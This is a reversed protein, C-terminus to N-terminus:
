PKKELNVSGSLIRSTTPTTAPLPPNADQPLEPLLFHGLGIPSVGDHTLIGSFTASRKLKKGAFAPATRLETDELLFSGTFLGTTASLSLLKVSGLNGASLAAPFKAVNKALIDFEAVDPNIASNGLGGENEDFQLQAKEGLTMGLILAPALPPTYRAGIASIDVPGYGLPYTRSTAAPPRLWSVTGALVDANLHGANAADIDLQGCLSGKSKLLAFVLIQGHPGAFTGCTYSEGDGTKGAASLKGDIGLTFSGYGDGRPLTSPLTPPKLAFTFQKPSSTAPKPLLGTARWVQQWGEIGATNPGDTVSATAFRQNATDLTFKFTLPPLAGTRPIIITAEPAAPPMASSIDMAGTKITHRVTGLTLSGSIVGTTAVTLDVRGGLNANLVSNRAVVGTYAGAVKDTLPAISLSATTSTGAISNRATLTVTYPKSLTPKGTILGTVTNLTLGPIAPSMSYSSAASSTGGDCKIQHTYFSSVQGDPMAQNLTIQPKANFVKVSFTGAMLMAGPVSAECTYVASDTAASLSALVLTQPTPTSLTQVMPPDGSTKKWTVTAAGFVSVTPRITTGALSVLTQTVPRVVALVVPASEVSEVGASVVVSYSGADTSKVTNFTLTSSVAGKVVVGNKKWAFTPTLSPHSATVSLSALTGENRILAVPPSAISPANTGIGTLAIDFPNETADNSAIKLTATRTGTTTPTFTVTFTTSAAPALTVAGLSGAVFEAAQPGIVSLSLGTLDETGSNKITFTRVEPQLHYKTGFTVTSAQDVLATNAPQEVEIEALSPPGNTVTVAKVPGFGWDRGSVTPSVTLLYSGVASPTFAFTTGPPLTASSATSVDILQSFSVDDIYWGVGDSTQGFFSGSIFSFNFRLKITVGAFASLSVTRAQFATEGPSGAGAQTYIPQWTLGDNKSAEVRAIQASTATGLRSRFSLSAGSKVLFKNQYTLTQKGAAPNALRYSGSGSFKVSTSTAAYSGTKDVIVRTLDNAPDAAANVDPMFHGKYSTAGLVANFSYNSTVSTQVADSGTLSPPVFAPKFDVKVNAAASIVATDTGNAGLDTFTVSRSANASPVPVAYGGSNSTIAHFSSGDVNVTLGGIGEGLDYFSNGNLDYYAVGTVFPTNSQTTGFDQTVLHPGVSDSGVKNNGLLVGIGVERYEGHISMRHGRGNQMGGTGPGWDVQFGEHGHVTNSAFCYVNEGLTGWDYGVADARDGVDGGDSSDHTQTAISFQYQTHLRAADTLLTNMALPPRVPLAAFENKMLTLNVGYQTYARLSDPETTTAMRIGEATPNARARNILELYLQEEDTPQGISYQTTQIQFDSPSEKAVKVPRERHLTKISELPARVSVDEMQALAPTALLFFLRLLSKM